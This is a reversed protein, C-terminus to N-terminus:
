QKRLFPRPLARPAEGFIETELELDVGDPRVSAVRISRIAVCANYQKELLETLAISLM